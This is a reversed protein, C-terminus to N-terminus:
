DDQHRRTRCVHSLRLGGTDTSAGVDEFSARASLSRAERPQGNLIDDEVDPNKVFTPLTALAQSISARTTIEGELALTSNLSTVNSLPAKM